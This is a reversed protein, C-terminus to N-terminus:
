AKARASFPGAQVRRTFRERLDSTPKEFGHFVLASLLLVVAVWALVLWGVIDGIAWARTQALHVILLVLPYHCLYVSYSYDGIRAAM